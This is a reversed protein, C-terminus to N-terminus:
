KDKFKIKFNLACVLRVLVVCSNVLIFVRQGFLNDVNADVQIMPVIPVDLKLSNDTDKNRKPEKEVSGRVSALQKMINNM